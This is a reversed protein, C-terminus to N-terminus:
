KIGMQILEIDSRIFKFAAKMKAILINNYDYEFLKEKERSDTVHTLMTVCKKAHETAEAEITAIKNEFHAEIKKLLETSIKENM